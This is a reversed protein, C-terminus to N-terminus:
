NKITEINKKDIANVFFDVNIDDETKNVKIICENM